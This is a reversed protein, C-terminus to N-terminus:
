FYKKEKKLYKEILYNKKIFVSKLFFFIIFFGWAVPSVPYSGLVVRNSVIGLM